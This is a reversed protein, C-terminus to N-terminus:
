RKNPPIVDDPLTSPLDKGAQAQEILYSAVAFENADLAGDKDIDALDWIVRLKAQDLRSKLFVKKCAAGSAKDDAGLELSFFENDYRGKMATTIAWSSHLETRDPDQAFPNVEMAQQHERFRAADEQPLLKMLNPIDRSLVEDMREILKKDL